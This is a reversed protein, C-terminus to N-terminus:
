IHKWRTRNKIAGVVSHHIGYDDAIKRYSRDDSRINLVDEDTLKSNPRDEGKQKNERGRLQMDKINQKQTGIELHEPNICSPNDCKHRIVMNDDIEGNEHEYIYRHTYVRKKNRQVTTYGNGNHGHSVCNWCGNKDIIYEIKKTPKGKSFEVSEEFIYTSL